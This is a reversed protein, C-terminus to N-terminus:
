DSSVLSTERPGPKVKGEKFLGGVAAKFAKKSINLQAYVDDPPSKDGLPISGGSAKLADLVIEKADKVREAVPQAAEKTLRIDLKNDDRIKDIYGSLKDGINLKSFARDRFILGSHAEDVLVSIGRNTFGHVLLSVEQNPKLESLDYDFFEGLRSAAAVRNTHNDLYVAVVYSQGIRMPEHQEAIPSFLDKDLGWDLFAGHRSEDIVRLCAFDGVQALPTQMTAVPRDESDTYVFVDVTDGAALENAALKTPLLIETEGDTLRYGPADKSVVRLSCTSGIQIM